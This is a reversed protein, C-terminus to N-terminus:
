AIAEEALQSAVIERYVTCSKVLEHHKGLGVIRGEDLVIIQDADMITSVRQAVIIVTADKTDQRLAARVKADTKFDLASFNDDFIYILPERVLARAITLRQKQGGSLNTGGQTIMADFDDHLESIFQAAQASEAAKLLQEHNAENKGYRLNEAVTGSFLMADQPVYGILSRLEKQSMDRVDVGDVTITGSTPDYFRLLLKALTSKGSGIGGIIATTHGPRAEFSIDALAPTEAGPYHFTVDRFAVTGRATPLQKDTVKDEISPQMDLIDAIRNASVAARPVMVFMMSLAIMSWMIQMVYQIFAMLSGVQMQGGDIRIAGFWLIAVTSINLTVMMIPSMSAMIQNVRIATDTLDKNAKQFREKEYEARNFARIVRVGSLGERSVLNVRDLKEQMIRFLPMGKSAIFMTAGILLPISGLLILSLRTDTTVAMFIGGIAMMPARLLMRLSMHILQQVQMVDNTTRTILTSTGATDFEQASFNTVHSFLKNRLDRGFSLSVRSAYYSAAVAAVIGLIAVLLMQGGVSLIFSTDGNVIGYDVIREMLAPLFLEAFSRALMLIFTLGILLRYPRLFHALRRM